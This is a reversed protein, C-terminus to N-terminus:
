FNQQRFVGKCALMQQAQLGAPSRACRHATDPRRRQPPLHRRDGPLPLLQPLAAWLRGRWAGRAGLGAPAGPHGVPARCSRLVTSVDWYCCLSPVMHPHLTYIFCLLPRWGSDKLDSLHPEASSDSHPPAQAPYLTYWLCHPWTQCSSAPLPHRRLLEGMSYRLNYKEYFANNRSTHEIDAYLQFINRVQM